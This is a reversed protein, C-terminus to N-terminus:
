YCLTGSFILPCRSPPPRGAYGRVEHVCFSMKVPTAKLSKVELWSPGMIDQHLLFTELASTRAGFM